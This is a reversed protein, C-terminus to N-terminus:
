IAGIKSNLNNETLLELNTRSLPLHFAMTPWSLTLCRTNIEGIHSCESYDIFVAGRMFNHRNNQGCSLNLCANLIYESTPPDGM